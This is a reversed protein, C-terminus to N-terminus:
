TKRSIFFQSIFLDLPEFRTQTRIVTLTTKNTSQYSASIILLTFKFTGFNFGPELYKVRMSRLWSYVLFEPMNNCYLLKCITFLKNFSHHYFCKIGRTWWFLLLKINMVLFLGKILLFVCTWYVLGCSCEYRSFLCYTFVFLCHPKQLTISWIQGVEAPMISKNCPM